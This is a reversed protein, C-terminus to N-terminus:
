RKHIKRGRPPPWVMQLWSRRRPKATTLSYIWEALTPKSPARHKGTKGPGLLIVTERSASEPENLVTSTSEEPITPFAM